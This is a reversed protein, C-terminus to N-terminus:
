KTQFSLLRQLPVAPALIQQIDVGPPLDRKGPQEGGGGSQVLGYVQVLVMM